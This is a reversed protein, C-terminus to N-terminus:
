CGRILALVVLILVAMLTADGPGRDSSKGTYNGRQDYHYRDRGM